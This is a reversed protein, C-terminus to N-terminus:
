PRCTDHIPELVAMSEVHATQPFMDLVGAAMLAYGHEHVLIGLDRAFTGPHCSIYVIRRPALRAIAPLAERAGARPPDLLVHSFGGAWWSSGAVDPAALDGVHFEANGIDNRLANARARRILGADAEVGVVHGAGRALALTFNGLGCFLDLVRDGEAPARFGPEIAAIRGADVVITQREAVKDSLGDIVRGAHILTAAGAPSALLFGLAALSAAPRQAVSM